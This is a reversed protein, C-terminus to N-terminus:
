ARAGAVPEYFRLFVEELSPEHSVINTAGHAAAAQIIASLDGQATMTIISAATGQQVNKANPIPTFWDLSAQGPFTIEVVHHKLDRLSAVTDVRVIGGERIIGVRDCTHEVEPLIHSSLFVTRGDAKVEAVMKYFEQQNLPDLGSTPEDLILVQPRHMFAQVLGIKQKNGRSYERFRKSPDFELRECLHQVYTQEVGGRLYGLYAIIQAGTLNPDLALEGPLYGTIKKVATSQKWCDLDGITASGATPQLLGLLVRITTTKGAGNPGLFGFVEGSNVSITVERIGRSHGYNKTLAHTQIIATM